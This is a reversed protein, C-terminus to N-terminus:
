YFWLKILGRIFAFAGIIVVILMPVLKKRNSIIDNVWISAQHRFEEWGEGAKERLTRHAKKEQIEPEKDM